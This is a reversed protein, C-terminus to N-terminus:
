SNYFLLNLCVVFWINIYVLFGGFVKLWAHVGGDPPPPLANSLPDAENGLPVSELAEFTSPTASEQLTGKKEPDSSSAM